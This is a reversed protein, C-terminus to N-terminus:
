GKHKQHSIQGIFLSAFFVSFFSQFGPVHTPMKSFEALAKWHIGIQCPKFLKWLDKRGQAKSSLLRLMLLSLM